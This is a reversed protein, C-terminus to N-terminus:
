GRVLSTGKERAVERNYKYLARSVTKGDLQITNEQDNIAKVIMQGIAMVANIVGNNSQEMSAELDPPSYAATMTGSVQAQLMATNERMASKADDMLTSAASLVSASSNEIGAAVGFGINLGVEDRFLRSPSHIGLKSKVASLLGDAWSSLRSRLSENGAEVGAAVGNSLQKGVENANTQTNVSIQALVNDISQQLHEKFADENMDIGVKMFSNMDTIIQNVMKDTFWDGSFGESEFASQMESGLTKVVNKAQSKLAAQMYEAEDNHYLFLKKFFGMEEWDKQAAEVSSRLGAILSGQMINTAETVMANIEAYQGQYATIMTTRLQELEQAAAANGSALAAAVYTDFSENIGRVAGDVSDRATSAASAIVGFADNAAGASQWNIRYLANDIGSFALQIENSGDKSYKSLETWIEITRSLFQEQSVTGSNYQAELSSMDAKLQKVTDLAETKVGLLTSLYQQTEEKALGLSDGLPSVLASVITDYAGSLALEIGDALENFLTVIEDKKEAITYAGYEVASVVTQFSDRVSVIKENAELVVNGSEAVKENAKTIADFLGVYKQAFDTITIAGENFSFFAEEVMAQLRQSEGFAVGAFQILLAATIGVIWGAPGGSFALLSAAIGLGAGIASKVYDMLEGDGRGIKAASLFQLTFGGVMLTLSIPIKFDKILRATDKILNAVGTFGTVFSSSIKWALMAAGIALAVDLLGSMKKKIEDIQNRTTDGIFDYEPLNVDIRDAGNLNSLSNKNDSLINLEDIGLLAKKLEKVQEASDEAVDGISGINKDMGSYDIKPMEFGVLGAIKQAAETLLEVFAQMYPLIKMLLPLAINGLARELQTVQQNLMRLANTPASTTRALDGMANTSQEMIALYRLQSKEAQSMSDVSATIGHELAVQKLTAVDIAYGLRRLPEIEGAVGSELKQMADEIPLNYFSSIDYGLQALNKSMLNAKDEIVGFGSTIQKFMGQYRMWASADIGFAGNVMKAYRYASDAAKGMTVSFLNFNEIYENSSTVWDSMKDSIRDLSYGLITLKAFSGTLGNAIQMSRGPVQNAAALAKQIRIPFAAFGASVKQMEDALPKMAKAVRAIQVEFADLDTNALEKSVSDLKRLSNIVSNLGSAKQIETLRSLSTQLSSLKNDDVELERMAMNLKTLRNAVSALDNKGFTMGGFSTKLSSIKNTNVRLADVAGSIAKLKNSLDALGMDGQTASKLKQLSSTLKNIDTSAKDANSSIELELTDLEISM